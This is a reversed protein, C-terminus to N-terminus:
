AEMLVVITEVAANGKPTKKWEIRVQQANSMASAAKDKCDLQDTFFVIRGQDARLEWWGDGGKVDDLDGTWPNETPLGDVKEAPLTKGQRESKRTPQAVKPADQPTNASGMEEAAVLGALEAPFARRLALAEACKALQGAPGTNWRQTPQGSSNTQVYERYLAIGPIAVPELQGEDLRLVTVRAASPPKDPVLWVDTWVGDAGCWEPPGFGRFKGTREAQLRLGDIGTQIVMKEVWKDGEKSRRMIAYIQRALPDLGTRKCVHLFLALEDDSTGKAVTRKILDIQDRTWNYAALATSQSDLNTAVSTEKTTM